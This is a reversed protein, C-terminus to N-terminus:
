LIMLFDKKRIFGTSKLQIMSYRLQQIPLCSEIMWELPHEDLYFTIFQIKQHTDFSITEGLEIIIARDCFPFLHYKM